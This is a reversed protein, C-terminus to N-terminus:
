ALTEKTEFHPLRQLADKLLPFEYHVMKLQHRQPLDDIAAIFEDVQAVLESVQERTPQSVVNHLSGYEHLKPIENELALRLTAFFDADPQIEYIGGDFFLHHLSFDITGDDSRFRYDVAGKEIIKRTPKIYDELIVLVEDEIKRREANDLIETQRSLAEATRATEQRSLRLERSQLLLAFMAVVFALPSFVGAIADGKENLDLKQFDAALGSLDNLRLVIAIALCALIILIAWKNKM